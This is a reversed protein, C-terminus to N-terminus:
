CKYNCIITFFIYIYIYIYSYISHCQDSSFDVESKNSIGMSRLVLWAPFISKDFSTVCSKVCGWTGYFHKYLASTLELNRYKLVPWLVQQAGQHVGHRCGQDCDIGGIGGNDLTPIRSARQNYNNNPPLYMANSISIGLKEWLIALLVLAKWLKLGLVVSGM